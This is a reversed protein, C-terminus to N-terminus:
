RSTGYNRTWFKDKHWEQRTTAMTEMHRTFWYSLMVIKEQDCLVHVKYVDRKLSVFSYRM